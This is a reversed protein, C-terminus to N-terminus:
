VSERAAEMSKNLRYRLAERTIGLLRAARSLNQGTYEFATVLIAHEVEDLTPRGKEFDMTITRGHPLGLSVDPTRMDSLLPLQARDIAESDAQLVCSEILHSLERVNGRWECEQLARTADETFRRRGLGFKACHMALFHNALM